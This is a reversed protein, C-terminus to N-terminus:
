LVPCKPIAEGTVVGTVETVSFRFLKRDTLVRALSMYKNYILQSKEEKKEKKKLKSNEYICLMWCTDEYTLSGKNIQWM